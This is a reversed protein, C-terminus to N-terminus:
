QKVFKQSSAGQATRVTFFYVGAPLQSVDYTVVDSQLDAKQEKIVVRGTADTIIYEVNSNMETLEVKASIQETAPNPFINFETTVAENATVNITIADTLTLGISPVIGSEYGAGYWQNDQLGTVTGTPDIYASRVISAPIFYNPLSDITFDYKDESNGIFIHRTTNDANRLGNIQDSCLVTAVYFSNPQLVAGTGGSLNSLAVARQRFTPSLDLAFTDVGLAQIPLEPDSPGTPQATWFGSGDDDNFKYLRVQVVAETVSTDANVTAGTYLFSDAVISDGNTVTYNPIYYMSGWEHEAPLFGDAARVGPLTAADASPFGTLDRGVKSLYDDATITFFDTYVDNTTDIQMNASYSVSYDVRYDGAATPMWGNSFGPMYLATDTGPAIAPVAMSDMVAVTGSSVESVTVYLMAEGANINGGIGNNEINAGWGMEDANVMRLPLQKSGVVKPPNYNEDIAIDYIAESTRVTVDDVGYYYSDGEFSFRVHCNTLSTASNVINSLDFLVMGEGADGSPAGIASIVDFDTWTAGGDTSFGASNDTSRFDRLGAYFELVVISDEYGTLDFAPSTITGIQPNAGQAFWFDADFFAVGDGVSPSTLGPTGSSFTGQSIGDVSYEWKGAVSDVTWGLGDLGIITDTAFRGISDIQTDSSGAGWLVTQASLSGASLLFALAVLVQTLKQNFM